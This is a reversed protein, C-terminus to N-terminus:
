RPPASAAESRQLAKRILRSLSGLCELTQQRTDESVEPKAAYIIDLSAGKPRLGLTIRQSELAGDIIALADDASVGYLKYGKTEADIVLGKLPRTVDGGDVKMWFSETQVVTGQRNAKAPVRVMGGKLLGTGTAYVVVSMDVVDVNPDAGLNLPMAKFRLGCGESGSKVLMQPESSITAPVVTSAAALLPFVLGLATVLIAHM